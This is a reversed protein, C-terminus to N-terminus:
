DTPSILGQEFLYECASMGWLEWVPKLEWGQAHYDGVIKNVGAPDLFERGLGRALGFLREDMNDLLRM